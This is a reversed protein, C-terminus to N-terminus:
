EMEFKKCFKKCSLFAFVFINNMKEPSVILNLNYPSSENELALIDPIVSSLMFNLLLIGMDFLHQQYLYYSM